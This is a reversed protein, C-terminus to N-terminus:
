PWVRKKKGYASFSSSCLAYLDKIHFGSNHNSTDNGNNSPLKMGSSQVESLKTKMDIRYIIYEAIAQCSAFVINRIKNM